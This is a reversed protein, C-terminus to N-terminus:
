VDVRQLVLASPSDRQHRHHHGDHIPPAAALARSFPEEGGRCATRQPFRVPLSRDAPTLSPSSQAVRAARERDAGCPPRPTAPRQRQGWPPGALVRARWLQWSSPGTRACSRGCNTPRPGAVRPCWPPMGSSPGYSSSSAKASLCRQSPIVGPAAEPFRVGSRRM